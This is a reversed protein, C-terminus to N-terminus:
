PKMLNYTAESSISNLLAAMVSKGFFQWMEFDDDLAFSAGLSIFGCGTVTIGAAHTIEYNRNAGYYDNFYRAKGLFYGGLVNLGFATMETWQHAKRQNKFVLLYKIPVTDLRGLEYISPPRVTVPSRLIVQSANYQQAKSQATVPLALTVQAFNATHLTITIIVLLIIKM